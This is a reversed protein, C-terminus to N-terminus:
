ARLQAQHQEKLPLINTTQEIYLSPLYGKGTEKIKHDGEASPYGFVTKIGVATAPNEKNLEKYILNGEVDIGIGKTLYFHGTYAPRVPDGNFVVHNDHDVPANGHADIFHQLGTEPLRVSAKAFPMQRSQVPKQNADFTVEFPAACELESLGKPAFATAACRLAHGHYPTTAGIRPEIPNIHQKSGFVFLTFVFDEGRIIVEKSYNGEAGNPKLPQLKEDEFLPLKSLIGTSNLKIVDDVLNHDLDDYTKLWGQPKAELLQRKQPRYKSAIDEYLEYLAQRGQKIKENISM